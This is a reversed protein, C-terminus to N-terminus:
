HSHTNVNRSLAYKIVTVSHKFYVIFKRIKLQFRQHIIVSSMRSRMVHIESDSLYSVILYSILEIFNLKCFLNLCVELKEVYFDYYGPIPIVQAYPKDLITKQHSKDYYKFSSFDTDRVALDERLSWFHLDCILNAM